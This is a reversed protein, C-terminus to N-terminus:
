KNERGLKKYLAIKGSPLVTTNCGGDWVGCVVSKEKPCALRLFRIHRAARTDEDIRGNLLAFFGTDTNYFLFVFLAVSLKGKKSMFVKFIKIKSRDLRFWGGRKRNRDAEVFAANLFPTVVIQAIREGDEIRQPEDGHNHLAVIIEGRYDSDVVGVKNAPALGRKAALGSRAFVLGAYGEPIEMALKTGVFVTGHAPIETGGDVCAYLDAGAAFESGRTPLKAKSDLKKVKVPIM